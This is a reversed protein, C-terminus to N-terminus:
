QSVFTTSIRWTVYQLAPCFFTLYFCLSSPSLLVHLLIIFTFKTSNGPDLHRFPPVPHSQRPVDPTDTGLQQPFGFKGRRKDTDIHTERQCATRKLLVYSLCGSRQWLLAVAGRDYYRWATVESHLPLSPCPVLPPSFHCFHIFLGSM